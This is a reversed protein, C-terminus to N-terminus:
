LFLLLSNLFKLIIQPSPSCWHSQQTNRFFVKYFAPCGSSVIQTQTWYDQPQDTCTEFFLSYKRPVIFAIFNVCNVNHIVPNSQCAESCFVKLESIGEVSIFNAIRFM